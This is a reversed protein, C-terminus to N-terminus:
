SYLYPIIYPKTRLTYSFENNFLVDKSNLVNNKNDSFLISLVKKRNGGNYDIDRLSFGTVHKNDEYLYVMDNDIYVTKDKKDKIYKFFEKKKETSETLVNFLRYDVTKILTNFCLLKFKEIDEIYREGRERRGYTWYVNDEIKWDLMSFKNDYISKTKTYGVILTPIDPIIKDKSKVVNYYEVDKIKSDTIINGLYKM